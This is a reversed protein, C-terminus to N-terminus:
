STFLCVPQDLALGEFEEGMVIGGKNPLEKDTEISLISHNPWAFNIILKELGGM